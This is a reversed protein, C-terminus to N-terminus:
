RVARARAPLHDGGNAAIFAAYPAIKAYRELADGLEAGASLEVFLEFLAREGLIHIQRALHRLRLDPIPM